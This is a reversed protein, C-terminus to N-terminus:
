GEVCIFSFGGGGKKGTLERVSLPFKKKPFIKWEKSVKFLVACVCEYLSDLTFYTLLDSLLETRKVTSLDFSVCKM